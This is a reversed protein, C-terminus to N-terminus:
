VKLCQVTGKDVEFVKLFNAPNEYRHVVALLQFPHEQILNFMLDLNKESLSSMGEDSIILGSEGRELLLAMKVAMSVVLKQGKSLQSYKLEKKDINVIFDFKGKANLLFKLSMHIRSLLHNIVPEISQIAELLYFSYFNDVEKICQKIIELDKPSWIYDKQKLRADLKHLMREATSLSSQFKEQKENLDMVAEQELTLESKLQTIVDKNQTVLDQVEKAVEDKYKNEVTQHCTPCEILGKVTNNKRVSADIKQNLGGLKYNIQRINIQHNNLKIRVPDILGKIMAIGKQLVTLRVESPAHPSIDVNAINYIDRERKLALLKTRLSNLKEENFSLLTKKLDLSSGELINIGASVDFLRFKQFWNLDHFTKNIYEQKVKISGKIEVGDELITLKSPIGRTISYSKNNAELFLRVSTKKEGITILDAMVGESYGHLCFLIPDLILASKGAGNEGTFLNLNFLTIKHEGKFNKWNNVTLERLRM